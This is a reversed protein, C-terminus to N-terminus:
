KVACGITLPVWERRRGRACRPGASRAIRVTTVAPRSRFSILVSRVDALRRSPVPGFAECARRKRDVVVTSGGPPPRGRARVKGGQVGVTASIGPDAFFQRAPGSAESQARAGSDAIGRGAVHSRNVLEDCSEAVAIRDAVLRDHHAVDEPRPAAGRVTKQSCRRM